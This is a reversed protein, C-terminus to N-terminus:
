SRARPELALMGICDVPCAAVCLGCGTCWHAVVAHLYRPAGVIADVPCVPICKACGICTAEDICAVTAQPLAPFPLEPYAAGLLNALAVAVRAGGPPCREIPAGAWAIAEAYPRCGAHGCARCQTQPLLADVREALDPPPAAAGKARGIAVALLALTMAILVASVPM